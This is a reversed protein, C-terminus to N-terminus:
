AGAGDRAAAVVLEIGDAAVPAVLARAAAVLDDLSPYAALVHRAWMGDDMWASTAAGPPGGPVDVVAPEARLRDWPWAEALRAGAVVLAAPGPVAPGPSGAGGAPRWAPGAPAAPAAAPHLRAVASWSPSRPPVRDAAAEVVRDLWCSTWLLLSPGPPPATPLGLARRCADAVTGDPRGPLSTVARDRRLLCASCGDRGILLTVVADDTGTAGTAWAEACVGLAQWHPPAVGGQLAAYPHCPGLPAWVLGHRAGPTATPGSRSPPGSGPPTPVVGLVVGEGHAAFRADAVRALALLTHHDPPSTVPM